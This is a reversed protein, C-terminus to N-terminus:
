RKVQPNISRNTMSDQIKQLIVTTNGFRVPLTIYLLDDDRSKVCGDISLFVFRRKSKTTEQLAVPTIRPPVALQAWLLSHM